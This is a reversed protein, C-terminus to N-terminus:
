SKQYAQIFAITDSFHGGATVSHKYFVNKLIKKNHIKIKCRKKKTYKKYMGHTRSNSYQFGGVKSGFM